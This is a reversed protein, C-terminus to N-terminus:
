DRRNIFPLQLGPQVPNDLKDEVLWGFTGRMLYLVILLALGVYGGLTVALMGLGPLTALLTAVCVTVRDVLALPEVTWRRTDLFGRTYGDRMSEIRSLKYQHRAHQVRRITIVIAIPLRILTRVCYLYCAFLTMGSVFVVFDSTDFPLPRGLGHAAFVLTLIIVVITRLDIM